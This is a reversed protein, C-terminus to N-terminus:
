HGNHEEMGQKKLVTYIERKIKIINWIMIGCYNSEVEFGKKRLLESIRGAALRNDLGVEPNDTMYDAIKRCEEFHEDASHRIKEIIARDM